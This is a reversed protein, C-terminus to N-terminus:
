LATQKNEQGVINRICLVALMIFSSKILVVNGNQASIWEYFLSAAQQHLYIGQCSDILNEIRKQYLFLANYDTYTLDQDTNATLFVHISQNGSFFQKSLARLSELYASHLADYGSHLASIGISITTHFFHYIRSQLQKLTKKLEDLQGSEKGSAILVYHLANVKVPIFQTSQITSACFLALNQIRFVDQEQNDDFQFTCVRYSHLSHLLSQIRPTFDNRTYIYGNLLSSLIHEQQNEDQQQKEEQLIREVCKLIADELETFNIPKLLFLAAGLNLADKAYEFSRHGTLIIFQTHPYKDKIYRLLTIGDIGPMVIDSIILDPPNSLCLELAHIGDQALGSIECGMNEWSFANSISDLIGQEDEAILIKIM